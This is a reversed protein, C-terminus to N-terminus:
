LLFSWMADLLRQIQAERREWRDAWKPMGQLLLFLCQGCLFAFDAQKAPGSIRSGRNFHVLSITEMASVNGTLFDIASQNLTNQQSNQLTSNPGQSTSYDSTTRKIVASVAQRTM